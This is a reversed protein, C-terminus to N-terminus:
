LALRNVQQNEFQFEITSPYFAEESHLWIVPAWEMAMEKTKNSLEGNALLPGAVALLLIVSLPAMAVFAFVIHTTGCIM